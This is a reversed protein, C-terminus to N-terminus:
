KCYSICGPLCSGPDSSGSCCDCMYQMGDPTQTVPILAAQGHGLNIAALTPQSGADLGIVEVKAPSLQALTERLSTM